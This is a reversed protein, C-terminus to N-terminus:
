LGVYRMWGRQMETLRTCLKSHHITKRVPPVTILPQAGNPQAPTSNTLYCFGPSSSHSCCVTCPLLYSVSHRDAAPPSISDVVKIKMTEYNMTETTILGGCLIDLINLHRNSKETYCCKVPSKVMPNICCTCHKSPAFVEQQLVFLLQSMQQICLYEGWLWYQTSGGKAAVVAALIKPYTEKGMNRPM